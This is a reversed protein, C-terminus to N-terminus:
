KEDQDSIRRPPPRVRKRESPPETLGKLQLLLKKEHPALEESENAEEEEPLHELIWKAVLEIARTDAKMAKAAANRIIAHQTTVRKESSGERLTVKQNVVDLLDTKFNRRGKPRGKPNGSRGKKFQTRKPPKRYGVEYEHNDGQSM